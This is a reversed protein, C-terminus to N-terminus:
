SLSVAPILAAASILPRERKHESVLQGCAAAIDRGRSTRVFNLINKESLVKRFAEVSAMDPREFPINPNENYLLVNIKCPIGHVRKALEKAHEPRDNLNKILIYEFTVSFRSGTPKAFRPSSIERLTGLLVDLPYAKNIPMIKSRIEDNPANLSIALGAKSEAAFRRIKPVLGSTSVTIKRAGIGLGEPDNMLNLSQMLNEYNDFPEGMGMLVVNTIKESNPLVLLQGAIEGATLNREVKQQATMCFTCGMKCGVQSSVCVTVRDQDLRPIWVTEVTRGDQLELLYKITGDSSEQALVIKPLIIAFDRELQTRLDRSMNTMKSFDTVKERWIWRMLQAVRFRPQGLGEFLEELGKRGMTALNQNLEM